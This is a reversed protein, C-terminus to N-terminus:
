PKPVHFIKVVDGKKSLAVLQADDQAITSVDSPEILEIFYGSSSLLVRRESDGIKLKLMAVRDPDVHGFLVTSTGFAGSVALPNNAKIGGITREDASSLELNTWGGPHTSPAAFLKWPGASAVEPGIHRGHALDNVIYKKESDFFPLRGAAISVTGGIVILLMLAALIALAPRRTFRAQRRKKDRRRLAGDSVLLRLEGLLRQEFEFGATSDQPTENM